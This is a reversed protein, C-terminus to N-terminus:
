KRRSKLYVQYSCWLRQFLPILMVASLKLKRDNVDKVWAYIRHTRYETIIIYALIGTLISYLIIKPLIYLLFYELLSHISFSLTQSKHSFTNDFVTKAFLRYSNTYTTPLTFSYLGKDDSKVVLKPLDSAEVRPFLFATLKNQMVQALNEPKRDFFSIVVDSSPITRGTAYSTKDQWIVKNSLSITPPLILPGIEGNYDSLPASICLPFGSRKESDLTYLCLEKAEQSMLIKNFIFYGDKDTSTQAFVRVSQLQVLSFPASYGFIRLEFTGPITASVVTQRETYVGKAQGPKSIASIFLYVLLINIYILKNKTM